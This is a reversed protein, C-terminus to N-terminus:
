KSLYKSDFDPNIVKFSCMNAQKADPKKAVVPRIVVGERPIAHFESDGKSFALLEEMSNFSFDFESVIPAMELGYRNCFNKLEELGFYRDNTLDKINFVFLKYSAFLYKNAQIGPGCQEAQIAINVKYDKCARALINKIEYKFYTDSYASKENINIGINRSFVSTDIGIFKRKGIYTVSQGDMKETAYCKLGAYASFIYPLAQARTEDTKGIENTPFSYSKKKFFNDRIFKNKKLFKVIFNDKKIEKIHKAEEEAEPDYKKVGIIDTVDQGDKYHGEPLFSLPLVLGESYLGAMKMNKIRMANHKEVYCRQRLFEIEPSAPILSDVEFYVVLDGVKVTNDVIVRWGTNKFKAYKIRQKDPIDDLQIVTQISALNRM